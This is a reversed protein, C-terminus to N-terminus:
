PTREAKCGLKTIRSTGNADTITMVQPAHAAFNRVASGSILARWHVPIDWTFSGGTYAKTEWPQPYGFFQARDGGPVTNDQSIQQRPFPRHPGPKNKKFYGTQDSAKVYEEWILVRYFSVDTPGITLHLDMGVGQQGATYTTLDGIKTATETEPEVVEFQANVTLGRYTLTVRCSDATAPATFTTITGTGASLTGHGSTLAWAGSSGVPLMTINVEEAVGIRRRSADPNGVATAITETRLGIAVVRVTATYTTDPVTGTGPATPWHIVVQVGVNSAGTTTRGATLTASSGSGSISCPSAGNAGTIPGLMNLVVKARSRRM